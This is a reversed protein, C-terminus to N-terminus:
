CTSLIKDIQIDVLFFLCSMLELLILAFVCACMMYLLVITFVNSVFLMLCFVM